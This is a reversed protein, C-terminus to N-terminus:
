RHSHLEKGYKAEMLMRASYSAMGEALVGIGEIRASFFQHGRWYHSLEHAMSEYSEALDRQVFGNAESHAITTAAFTFKQPLGPIGDRTIAPGYILVSNTPMRAATHHSIEPQNLKESNQTIRGSRRM